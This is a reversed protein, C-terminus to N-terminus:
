SLKRRAEQHQAESWKLFINKTKSSMRCTSSMTAFDCLETRRMSHLMEIAQFDKETLSLVYLCHYEITKKATSCYEYDPPTERSVVIIHYRELIEKYGSFSTATDENPLTIYPLTDERDGIGKEILFTTRGDDGVILFLAFVHRSVERFPPM